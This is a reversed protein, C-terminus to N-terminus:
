IGHHAIYKLYSIIFLLFLPFFINSKVKATENKFINESHHSCAFFLRLWCCIFRKGHFGHSLLHQATSILSVSLIFTSCASYLSKYRAPSKSFYSRKTSCMLLSHLDSNLFIINCDSIKFYSVNQYIGSCSKEAAASHSKPGSLEKDYPATGYMPTYKSTNQAVFEIVM